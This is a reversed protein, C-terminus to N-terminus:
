SVNKNEPRLPLRISFRTGKGPTSQVDIQGDHNRTIIFYSVFLGLGTGSRPEKTTFFPEFIKQRVSEPMGPGNDAIEIRANGNDRGLKLTIRPPEPREGRDSMAQAANKLLNLVVQQIETSRCPVEPLGPEYEREIAIKKMDFNKKLDYDSQALEVAQDLVEDLRQPRIEAENKRSFSLMNAVIDAAREGSHRISQLMEPIGREKMYAAVAELNTGCKQAAARNAPLDPSIRNLVVQANQLMGALPNNIEHAMGAALGAVTRMKESELMMAEAHKRETIDNFIMAFQGPMPSFASVEFFRGLSDNFREYSLHGGECGLRMLDHQLQEPWKWPLEAGTKGIGSQMNLGSHRDAASNARVLRYDVPTGEPTCMVDFITIGVINQEFLMRFQEENLRLAEEARRQENMNEYVGLVGTVNGEADHLPTKITDLWVETGDSPQTAKFQRKLPKGTRIVEADAARYKEAEERAWFDFDTKGPVETADKLGMAHAFVQNGGMYVSNRDKWFIYHPVSNLVGTLMAQSRQLAAYREDLLDIMKEISGRLSELEGSFHQQTVPRPDRMGTTVSSAFKEVSRLPMLFMQRLLTYLCFILILDVAVIRAALWLLSKRLREEVYARTVFVKVSGLTENSAVIPREQALLGVGTTSSASGGDRMKSYIASQGPASVDHQHVIVGYVEPAEMASEIVRDIQPRDFNWLPLALGVALQNARSATEADLRARQEHSETFYNIFGLAALLVTAVAVIAVITLTAVSTKARLM